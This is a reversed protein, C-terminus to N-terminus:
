PRHSDTPHTLTSPTFCWPLSCSTWQPRQLSHCPAVVPSRVMRFTHDAVSEPRALGYRVWGARPTLQAHGGLCSSASDSPPFPSDQADRPCLSPVLLLRTTTGQPARVAHVPGRSRRGSTPLPQFPGYTTYPTYRRAPPPRPSIRAPSPCAHPAIRPLRCAHVVGLRPPRLSCTPEHCTM